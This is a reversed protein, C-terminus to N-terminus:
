RRRGKSQRGGARATEQPTRDHPSLERLELIVGSPDTLSPIQRVKMKWYKHAETLESGVNQGKLLLCVSNPGIFHHAYGLLKPLPACARATVVEFPKALAEEMRRNEVTVKLEMADAAALLFACKKATAEHLTVQIRNRLLEALVLGPFGAGSGLDALTRANEPVLPALQASDWFHRRWLDELSRPSVLNHRSNWDLLLDAYRQLRALTERSVGTAAAFEEAGFGTEPVPPAKPKKPAKSM